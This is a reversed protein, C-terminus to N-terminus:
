CLLRLFNGARPLTEGKRGKEIGNEIGKESGKKFEKTSRKFGWHQTRMWQCRGEFFFVSNEGKETGKVCRKRVV